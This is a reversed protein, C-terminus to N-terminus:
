PGSFSKEFWSIFIVPLRIKKGLRRFFADWQAFLLWLLISSVGQKGSEKNTLVEEEEKKQDPFLTTNLASRDIFCPTDLLRFHHFFIGLDTIYM